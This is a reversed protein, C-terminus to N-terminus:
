LEVMRKQLETPTLQQHYLISLARDIKGAERARTYFQEVLRGGVWYTFSYSSWLPHTLFDLRKEARQRTMLGNAELYAVCEDKSMGQEHLMLTANVDAGRRLKRLLTVVSRDTDEENAAIFLGATSAIGESLVSSPTNILAISAELFGRDHYLSKEKIAHDTHHGPYAEHTALDEAEIRTRPIDLNVRILSTYNGRYWNYGSWPQGRVGEVTVKEGPPLDIIRRTKERSEDVAAGIFELLPEDSLCREEEWRTLAERVPGKYGSSDLLVSIQQRYAEMEAEGAPSPDIDFLRRVYERFDTLQGSRYDIQAVLAKLQKSLYAQRDPDRLETPLREILEVAQRRLTPLPAIEEKAVADRLEEPGYYSDVLGHIHKDLRLGLKVYDEPVM